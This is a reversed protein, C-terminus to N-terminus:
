FYSVLLVDGRRIPADTEATLLVGWADGPRQRVTVRTARDFPMGDVDVLEATALDRPASFRLGEPGPQALM